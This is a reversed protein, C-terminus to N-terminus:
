AAALISFSCMLVCSLYYSALQQFACCPAFSAEAQRNRCVLLGSGFVHLQSRVKMTLVDAGQAEEPLPKFFDGKTYTLRGKFEEESYHM